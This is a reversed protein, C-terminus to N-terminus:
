RASARPEAAHGTLIERVPEDEGGGVDLRYRAAVADDAIGEDAPPVGTPLADRAPDGLELRARPDRQVRVVDVLDHEHQGTGGRELEAVLLERQRGAVGGPDRGPYRVAEAVRAGVHQAEM